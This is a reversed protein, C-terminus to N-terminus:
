QGSKNYRNMAADVGQRLIVAVAEGAQAIVQDRLPIEEAAFPWLVFDITDDKSEPKGIGLRLRLFSNTGLEEIISAVGKHGGPGGQRTIKLRGLPLDLDDHIVILDAPDLRHYRLASAVAAGSLNMYTRPKLLVAEQGAIRGKGVRAHFRFGWVRIRHAKALADVALFGFNHRTDRYESGPNGLGAILKM